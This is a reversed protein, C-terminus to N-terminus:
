ISYDCAARSVHAIVDITDEPSWHTHTHNVRISLQVSGTLAGDWATFRDRSAVM